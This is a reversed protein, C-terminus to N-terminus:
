RQHLLYTIQHLSSELGAVKAHLEAIAREQKKLISGTDFYGTVGAPAGCGNCTIMIQKYNAGTPSIEHTGFFGTGCHPCKPLAM